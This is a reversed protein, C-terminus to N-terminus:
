LLEVIVKDNNKIENEDFGFECIIFLVFENILIWFIFNVKFVILYLVIFFLSLFLSLFWVVLFMVFNLKEM